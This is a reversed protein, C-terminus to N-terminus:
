NKAYFLYTTTYPISDQGGLNQETAPTSPPLGGATCVRQIYTVKNGPSSLSDVAKLLLWAIASPDPTVEKLKTGFVMEGKYLGKIFQWGPGRFHIGLQNTFDPKAYFNASPGVNVWAYTSPDITSRKVEYVQVGQAYTQLVLRNGEPVNLIEPITGSCSNVPMANAVENSTANEEAYSSDNAQQDKECSTLVLPFTAFLLIGGIFKRITTGM